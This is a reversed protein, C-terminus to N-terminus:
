LILDLILGRIDEIRGLIVLNDREASLVQKTLEELKENITKVTAFVRHRGRRDLFSDKSFSSSSRIANDLFESILRKYAKLDSIDIHESLRKGATEIEQAMKKLEEEQNESFHRDLQTSFQPSSKGKVRGTDQETRSSIRPPKRGSNGDVKLAM